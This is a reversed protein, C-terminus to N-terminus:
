GVAPDTTQLTEALIENIAEAIVDPHDELTFHRGGPIRRLPARLDAALQEASAMGLPDADGWVIRAPMNLRPLDHAIMRTHRADFHRLQHAFAKPGIPRGYPQWHLEASEIRRRANDHGLNFLAGLFFLKVLAPPLHEILDSMARATRVAVVPWNDYAVCDTLVLGVCLEPHALVLHQITGGGFDHGVFTARDIGLYRLWAHLYEAQHPLSIDRDLGTAMSWGFGVQEWALCRVGARAVLPIVYRWARPHTPLGHVMVVPVSDDSDDGHAEWRMLMGDVIASHILEPAVEGSGSASAEPPVSRRLANRLEVAALVALPLKWGNSRPLSLATAVAAGALVFHVARPETGAISQM